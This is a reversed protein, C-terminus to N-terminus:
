CFTLCSTILHCALVLDVVDDLVALRPADVLRSDNKLSTGVTEYVLHERDLLLLEVLCDRRDELKSRMIHYVSPLM